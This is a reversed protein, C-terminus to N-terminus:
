DGIHNVMEFSFIYAASYIYKNDYVDAFEYTNDFPFYQNHIIYDLKKSTGNTFYIIVDYPMIDYVEKKKYGLIKNLTLNELM